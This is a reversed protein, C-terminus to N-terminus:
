LSSRPQTAEGAHLVDPDGTFIEKIADSDSIFIITGVPFRVTFM